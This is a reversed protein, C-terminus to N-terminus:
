NFLLLVNPHCHTRKKTEIKTYYQLFALQHYDCLYVHGPVVSFQCNPQLAMCILIHPQNLKFLKWKLCKQSIGKILILGFDLFLGSISDVETITGTCFTSSGQTSCWKTLFPWTKTKTSMITMKLLRLGFFPWKVPTTYSTRFYSMVPPPASPAHWSIFTLRFCCSKGCLSAFSPRLNIKFFSSFRPSPVPSIYCLGEFTENWALRRRGFSVSESVLNLEVAIISRHIAGNSRGLYMWEEM